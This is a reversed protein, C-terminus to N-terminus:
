GHYGIADDTGLMVGVRLQHGLTHGVDNGWQETAYWSGAGNGPGHGVDIVSTPGRYGPQYMGHHKQKDKQEESGEGLENGHGTQSTNENDNRVIHTFPSLEEIQEFHGFRIDDHQQYREEKSDEHVQCHSDFHPQYQRHDQKHTTDHFGGRNGDHLFFELGFFVSFRIFAQTYGIADSHIFDVTGEKEPHGILKLFM